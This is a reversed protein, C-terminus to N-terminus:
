SKCGHTLPTSPVIKMAAGDHSFTFGARSGLIALGKAWQGPEISAKFATGAEFTLAVSESESQLTVKGNIPKGEIEALVYNQAEGYAGLPDCVIKLSVEPTILSHLEVGRTDTKTWGTASAAVPLTALISAIAIMKM